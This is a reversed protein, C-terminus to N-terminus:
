DVADREGVYYFDLTQDARKVAVFWWDAFQFPYPRHTNMLNSNIRLRGEEMSFPFTQILANGEPYPSVFEFAYRQVLRPQPYSFERESDETSMEYLDEPPLYTNPSKVVAGSSSVFEKLM